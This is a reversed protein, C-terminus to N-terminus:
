KIIVNVYSPLANSPSQLRDLNKEMNGILVGVWM